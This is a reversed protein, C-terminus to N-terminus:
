DADLEVIVDAESGLRVRRTLPYSGEERVELTYTDAPLVESRWTDDNADFSVEWQTGDSGALTFEPSNMTLPLNFTIQRGPALEIELPEFAENSEVTVAIKHNIHGKAGVILTYEGAPPRVFKLGSESNFFGFDSVAGTLSAHYSKLEGTSSTVKGTVDFNGVALVDRRVEGAAIHCDGPTFYSGVSLKWDGEPVDEFQVRGDADTKESLFAPGHATVSVGPAPLGGADSVEIIWTASGDLFGMVLEQTEGAGLNFSRVTSIIEGNTAEVGFNDLVGQYGLWVTYWGPDLQAFQLRGDVDTIAQLNPGSTLSLSIEMGAVGVGAPSRVFVDINAPRKVPELRIELTSKSGQTWSRQSVRYGSAFTDISHSGSGLGGLQAYGGSDTRAFGPGDPGLDAIRPLNRRKRETMSLVSSGVVPEGTAADVVHVRLSSSLTPVLQIVARKGFELVFQSPLPPAFGPASASVTCTKRCLAKPLHTLVLPNHEALNISSLYPILRTREAESVDGFAQELEFSPSLQLSGIRLLKGAADVVRIELSTGTDEEAEVPVRLAMETVVAEPAAGIAAPVDEADAVIDASEKEMVANSTTRNWAVGIGVAAGLTLLLAIAGASGKVGAAATGAFHAHALADLTEAFERSATITPPTADGLMCPAIMGFAGGSLRARLKECATKLRENVTRKACGLQLGVEAATLGGFYRLEVCQALEQPLAFVAERLEQVELEDLKPEREITHDQERAARRSDSRLRTRALGLARSILWGRSSRLNDAKPAKDFIGMFVEQTVDEALSRDGLVRWAAGLVTDRESRVLDSFADQGPDALYQQLADTTM